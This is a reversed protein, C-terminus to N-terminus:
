KRLYQREAERTECQKTEETLVTGKVEMRPSGKLVSPLKMNRKRNLNLKTEVNIYRQKKKKKKWSVTPEAQIIVQWRFCEGKKKCVKDKGELKQKKPRHHIQSVQLLASAPMQESLLSQLSSSILLKFLNSPPKIFQSKKWTLSLLGTPPSQGCGKPLFHHITNQSVSNGFTPYCIRLSM